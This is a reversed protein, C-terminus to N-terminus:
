NTLNRTVATGAPKAQAVKDINEVVFSTVDSVNGAADAARFYVTGNATMVVGATYTQWTKNDLSYEKLVADQSFAATVVVSKNTPTTIYRRITDEVTIM